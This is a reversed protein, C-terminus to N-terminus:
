RGGYLNVARVPSILKCAVLRYQTLLKAVVMKFELVAMRIGACIPNVHLRCKFDGMCSRPGGGFGLFAISPRAASESPSFRDPRFKQRSAYRRMYRCRVEHADIGWIATDYHLSWVDATVITGKAVRRGDGVITDAM